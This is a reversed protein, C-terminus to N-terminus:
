LGLYQHPLRQVIQGDQAPGPVLHPQLDRRDLGDYYPLDPLHYPVGGGHSESEDDLRVHDQPLLLLRYADRRIQRRHPLARLCGFYASRHASVAHICPQVIVADLRVALPLSPVTTPLRRHCPKSQHDEPLEGLPLVRVHHRARCLRRNYPLQRMGRHYAQRRAPLADELPRVRRRGVPHHLPLGLLGAPLRGGRPEPQHDKPLEGPPLVRLYHRSGRLRWVRPVPCVVALRAGWHTPIQDCYQPQFIGTDMGRHHPLDCLDQPFGGTVHNPNTTKQYNPLHCGECQNPTGAYKGGVHCLSCAVQVHAGTLAFRTRSNHDWTAGAWQTTTHCTACTQPFGAATHNPNTTQQYNALHCSSCQASTGAFVGGVHCQNCTLPVHAGTLPFTTKTSHDFKAGPWQTTTHCVTCDQPFGAAVHNPNTTKQYNALHCSVCTTPSARM